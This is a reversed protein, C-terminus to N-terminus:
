FGAGTPDAVDVGDDDDDDDLAGDLGFDFFVQVLSLTASALPVIETTPDALLPLVALLAECGEGLPAM